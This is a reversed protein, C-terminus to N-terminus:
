RQWVLRTVSPDASQRRFDSVILVAAYVCLAIGVATM